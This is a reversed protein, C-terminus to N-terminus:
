KRTFTSLASLAATLLPLLFDGRQVILKRKKGLAIRKDVLHRLVAKHLRSTQCRLNGNLMNLAAEIIGLTVDKNSTELLAKRLRPNASKLVHPIHYNSKIRKM